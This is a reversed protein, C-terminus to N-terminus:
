LPLTKGLAWHTAEGCLYLCSQPQIRLLICARFQHLVKICSNSNVRFPCHCCSGLLPNPRPSGPAPVPRRPMGKYGSCPKGNRVRHEQLSSTQSCPTKTEDTGKRLSAETRLDTHVARHESTNARSRAALLSKNSKVPSEGQLKGAARKFPPSCQSFGLRECTCPRQVHTGPLLSPTPQTSIGLGPNGPCRRPTIVPQQAGRM